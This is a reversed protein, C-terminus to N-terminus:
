LPLLLCLHSGNCAFKFRANCIALSDMLGFVAKLRDAQQAMRRVRKPLGVASNAALGLGSRREAWEAM